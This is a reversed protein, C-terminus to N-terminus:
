PMNTKLRYIDSGDITTVRVYNLRVFQLIDAYNHALVVDKWKIQTQKRVKTDLDPIRAKDTFDIMNVIVTPPNTTFQSYFQDAWHETLPTRVHALPYPLFSVPSERDAVFNVVPRFGWIFVKDQPTTNERLYSAVPDVYDVEAGPANWVRALVSGYDMLINMKGYIAMVLLILLLALEYKEFRLAVRRFLSHVAFACLLGLFPAWGIFYHPYNRGSLSSLMVEVPWGIVLLLSLMGLVTNSMGRKFVASVCLVYGLAASLVYEWGLSMLAGLIADLIRSLGGGNSYQYNFVLVVNIMETLADNLAFYLIVPVLVALMGGTVLVARQIFLRWERSVLVLIFYAGAVAAQMSINNPRLLINLGASVGILLPFWKGDPQELSKVYFFAAAFSFLLSYEESYNGGQLANGVAAVWVLTGALAPLIGMLRKLVIYTMCGAVFLFLFELLWVGWRSGDSLFIGLANIYFVLPGKNEWAALYPLKGKLILSGIYLFIGSDRGPYSLSPNSLIGLVLVGIWGTTLIKQISVQLSSRVTKQM